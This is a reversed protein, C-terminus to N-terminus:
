QAITPVGVAAELALQGDRAKERISSSSLQLSSDAEIYHVRPSSVREDVGRATTVM